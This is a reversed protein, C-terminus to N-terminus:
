ELLKQMYGSHILAFFDAFFAIGAHVFFGPWISRCHLSLMGLLYGAFLSAIAEPFPKFIHGIAYGIMAIWVGRGPLYHELRYLLVGRFFFETPFFLPLYICEYLLWDTMNLPKYIPYYQNLGAMAFSIWLIPLMILILLVSIIYHKGIGRIRLGFPHDIPLPFYKNLLVPTVILFVFSSITVFVQSWFVMQNRTFDHFFSLNKAIQFFSSGTGFRLFLLILIPLSIFTLNIGTTHRNFPKLGQFAVHFFEQITNKIM